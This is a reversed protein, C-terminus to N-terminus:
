INHKPLAPSSRPVQIKGEYVDNMSALNQIMNKGRYSCLYCSQSGGEWQDCLPLLCTGKKGMGGGWRHDLKEVIQGIQQM